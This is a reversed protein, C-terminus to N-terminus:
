GRWLLVVTLNHLCHAIIPGLLSGSRDFLVIYLMRTLFLAPLFPLNLHVASFMVGAAVRAVIPRYHMKAMSYLLGTFLLEEIIPSLFCTIALSHLLAWQSPLEHSAHAAQVGQLYYELTAKSFVASFVLQNIAFFGLSVAAILVSAFLVKRLDVPIRLIDRFDRHYFRMGLWLILLVGFLDALRNALPFNVPSLQMRGIIFGTLQLWGLWYGLFLYVFPQPQSNRIPNNM